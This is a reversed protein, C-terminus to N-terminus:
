LNYIGGSVPRGLSPDKDVQSLDSGGFFAQPQPSPPSPQPPPPPISHSSSSFGTNSPMTAGIGMGIGMGTGSMASTDRDNVGAIMTTTSPLLNGYEDTITPQHQHQYQSSSSAHHHSSQQQQQQQQYQLHQSPDAITNDDGSEITHDGLSGSVSNSNPLNSYSSQSTEIIGNQTPYAAGSNQDIGQWYAGNSQSGGNNNGTPYPSNNNSNVGCTVCILVLGILGLSASYRYRFKSVAKGPLTVMTPFSSSLFFTESWSKEQEFITSLAGELVSSFFSFCSKTTTTTAANNGFPVSTRKLLTRSICRPVFADEIMLM